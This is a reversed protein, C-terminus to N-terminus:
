AGTKKLRGAENKPAAAVAQLQDIALSRIKMRFTRKRKHSTLPTRATAGSSLPLDSEIRWALTLSRLAAVQHKKRARSTAHASRTGAVM